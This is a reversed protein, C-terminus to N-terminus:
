HGGPVGLWAWRLTLKRMSLLGISVFGFFSDFDNSAKPEIAVPQALSTINFEIILLQYLLLLLLLLLLLFILLIAANWIFSPAVTCHGTSYAAVAVQQCRYFDFKGMELHGICLFLPGDNGFPWKNM